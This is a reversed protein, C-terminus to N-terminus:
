FTFRYRWSAKHQLVLLLSLCNRVIKGNLISKFKLRRLSSLAWLTYQEPPHSTYLLFSPFSWGGEWKQVQFKERVGRWTRGCNGTLFSSNEHHTLGLNTDEKGIRKAWSVSLQKRHAVRWWSWSESPHPAQGEWARISQMGHQLFTFSWHWKTYIGSFLVRNSETHRPLSQSVSIHYNTREQFSHHWKM